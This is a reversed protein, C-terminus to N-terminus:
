YTDFGGQLSVVCGTTSGDIAFYYYEGELLSSSFDWHYYSFDPVGSAYKSVYKSDSKGTIKNYIRVYYGANIDYMKQGFIRFRNPSETQFYYNSYIKSKNIYASWRYNNDYLIWKQTPVTRDRAGEKSTEELVLVDQNPESAFSTTISAMPAVSLIVLLM